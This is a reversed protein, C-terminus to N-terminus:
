HHKKGVKAHRKHLKGFFSFFAKLGRGKSKIDNRLEGLDKAVLDSEHKVTGSIDKVDRLIRVTYVLAIVFVISVAVTAVSTIFFFIDAQLLTGMATVTYWVGAARVVCGSREPM